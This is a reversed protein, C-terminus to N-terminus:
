VSTVVTWHCPKTKIIESGNSVQCLYAEYEGVNSFGVEVYPGSVDYYDTTGNVNWNSGDKKVRLKNTYGEKYAPTLIKTNPIYGSKYQFGEGMYPICPFNVVRHADGEDGTDVYPSKVYPVSAILSYRYISYSAWCTAFESASWMRRRCLGGEQSGLVNWNNNGTTTAESIEIYTVNGEKDTVMDSVVAAHIDPNLIMDGMQIDSLNTSSVSGVLTMGPASGIQTATYYQDLNYVYSNFAACVIAYFCANHNNTDAQYVSEKAVVSESNMVASVFTDFGIAIGVKMGVSDGYGWQVSHYLARGYPIGTYEVGAKFVDEFIVTSDFDDSDNVAMRDRRPIDVAPTWKIDTLQRCRRVVNLQGESDPVAHTIGGNKEPTSITLSNKYQAADYVAFDGYLERREANWYTFRAYEAGQPVSAEALFTYPTEADFGNRIGSIMSKNSDYFVMGHAPATSLSTMCKTYLIKSIGDISIFPTASFNANEYTQGASAGATNVTAVAIGDILETSLNYPLIIKDLSEIDAANKVIDAELDDIKQLFADDYQAADYVAFPTETYVPESSIWYTFRAYKAGQPVSVRSLVATRETAGYGNAIGSDSIFGSEAASTYFALGSTPASSGTTVIKTYIIEAMGDISIFDSYSSAANSNVAGTAVRIIGGDTLSASTAIPVPLIGNIENELIDVRGDITQVDKQLDQVLNVSFTVNDGDSISMNSTPSGANRLVIKFKYSPYSAFSFRTLYKLNATTGSSSFTGDEHLFGVYSGNSSNWAYVYFEYGNSCSVDIEGTNVGAFETLRLRAANSLTTGDAVRYSGVEWTDRTESQCVINLVSRSMFEAADEVEIQKTGNVGDKLLVDHADFATARPYETIKPM